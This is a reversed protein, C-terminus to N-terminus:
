TKRKIDSVLNLVWISGCAFNYDQVYSIKVNKSLLRSSLLNHVSHYSAKDSYLRVEIEEQISNLKNCDNEFIQVTTCKRRWLLYNFNNVKNLSGSWFKATYIVSRVDVIYAVHRAWKITRSKM